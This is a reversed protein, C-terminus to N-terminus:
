VNLFEGNSEAELIAQKRWDGQSYGGLQGDRRIVRHCPIILPLPNAAIANAVARPASARGILEALAKYSKRQGPKITILAAWVAHQFSTGPLVIVLPSVTQNWPAPLSCAQCVMEDIFYCRRLTDADGSLAVTGFPTPWLAHQTCPKDSRSQQLIISRM